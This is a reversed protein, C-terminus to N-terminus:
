KNLKKLEDGIADEIIKMTNESERKRTDQFFNLGDVKGTYKGKSTKSVRTKGNSGKTRIKWYREKTGGEFFINLYNGMVSVDVETYAKQPKIYVGDVMTKKAKGKATKAKPFKSILTKQTESQLYKAGEKLAKMMMNKQSDKDLNNFLTNIESLDITVNKAM